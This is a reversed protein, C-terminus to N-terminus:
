IFEFTISLCAKNKEIFYFDLFARVYIRFLNGVPVYSSKKKNFMKFFYLNNLFFFTSLLFFNLIQFVTGLWIFLIFEHLCPMFHSMNYIM